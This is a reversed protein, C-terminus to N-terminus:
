IGLAIWGLGTTSSANTWRLLTPLSARHSPSPLMRAGGCGIQAARKRAGYGRVFVPSGDSKPSESARRVPYSRSLFTFRLSLFRAAAVRRREGLAPEVLRLHFFVLTVRAM